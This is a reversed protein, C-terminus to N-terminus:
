PRKGKMLMLAAVAGAACMAAMAFFAMRADAAYVVGALPMALGFAAGWALAGYLGQATAALGPPVRRVLFQLTALHAAAFTLAHLMQAFVLVPLATSLGTLSWRLIGAIGSIMLLREAGIREVVAGGAMFLLVEVVVAVAWLLGVVDERYGAALWHLTGFAYFVVHSAQILAAALLLWQLPRDALLSLTSSVVAGQGVRRDGPLMFAAGALAALSAVILLWIWDSSRGVLFWGVIIGTLMFSLSGWLRVRGYQFGQRLGLSTTLADMMPNVSTTALGSLLTVALIPWFGHTLGFLAYSLLSAISLGILVARVDGIRDALQASLANGVLKSWAPLSLLVGIEAATMGRDRLWVPWFPMVIGAAAFSAIYFLALRVAVAPPRAGTLWANL